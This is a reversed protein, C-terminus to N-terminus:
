KKATRIRITKGDSTITVAGDIDTRYLKSGSDKITQITRLSPHGYRNVKGVSIVSFRPAVRGLFDDSTSTSSGHHGIKIVDSKLVIGRALLAAEEEFGADGMFLFSTRGYVLRLVVSNNNLDRGSNEGEGFPALVTATASGLFFKQGSKAVTYKIRNNEVLKLFNMYYASTHPLGIDLVRSVSVNNMVYPLGAVHDDHPHTLVLLDINNVGMKKLFPLVVSRGAKSIGGDILLVKGEPSRVFISDGQGVDLVTVSLDKGALVVPAFLLLLLVAAAPRKVSSFFTRVGNKKIMEISWILVAFYALVFLVSPQSVYVRAFPFSSFLSVAIDLFSLLSVLVKGLIWAAPYFIISLFACIFGATTIIEALPVVFLNSFFSVFSVTSFYYVCLPMTAIVPAFAVSLLDSIGSRIYRGLIDKIFPAIYVLAWTAVFSLQVGIDFLNNPNMVLLVLAAASLSNYFEGERELAKGAVVIQGMISARLISPCFGAMAAFFWIMFSTVASATLPRMGIMKGSALAVGILISVQQGSAVLIHVVGAKQYKDKLDDDLPAAKLGFLISSFLTSHYSSMMTGFRGAIMNKLRISLSVFINGKDRGVVQIDRENLVTMTGSIDRKSLYDYYDFQYPNSSDSYNSYLGKLRVLDGYRVDKDFTLFVKLDGSSSGLLFSVGKETFAPEEKIIGEVCLGSRSNISHPRGGFWNLVLIFLVSLVLIILLPYKNASGSM